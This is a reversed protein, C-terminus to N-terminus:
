SIHHMDDDVIKPKEDDILLASPRDTAEVPLVLFQDAVEIPLAPLRDTVEIFPLFILDWYGGDIPWYRYFNFSLDEVKNVSSIIM